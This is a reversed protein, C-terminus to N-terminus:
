VVIDWDEIAFIMIEKCEYHKYNYHWFQTRQKIIIMWWALFYTIFFFHAHHFFLTHNYMVKNQEQRIDRLRQIYQQYLHAIATTTSHKARILLLSYTRIMRRHKWDNMYISAHSTTILLSTSSTSSEWYILATLLDSSRWDCTIMFEFSLM